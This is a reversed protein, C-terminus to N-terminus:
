SAQSTAEEGDEYRKRKSSDVSMEIDKVNQLNLYMNINEDENMGEDIDDLSDNSVLPDELIANLNALIIGEPNTPTPDPIKQVVTPQDTTELLGDHNVYPPNSGSKPPQNHIVPILNGSSIGFAILYIAAPLVGFGGLPPQLSIM